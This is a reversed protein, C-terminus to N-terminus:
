EPRFSLRRAVARHECRHTFMTPVNLHVVLNLKPHCRTPLARTPKAIAVMSASGSATASLRHRASIPDTSDARRHTQTTCSSPPSCGQAM